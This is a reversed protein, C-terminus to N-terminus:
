NRPLGVTFIRSLQDQIRGQIYSVQNDLAANVLAFPIAISLGLATTLLAEWIGGAMAGADAGTGTSALGQFVGIIGLVTGLLGLLPALYAIQELLRLLSNLRAIIMNGKRVLEERIKEEEVAGNDLWAIGNALLQATENSEGGLQQVVDGRNDISLTDLIRDLRGFSSRSFHRFQLLKYLVVALGAVSMALLIAVVPGGLQLLTLAGSLLNEQEAPAAVAAPAFLLAIVCLPNKHRIEPL